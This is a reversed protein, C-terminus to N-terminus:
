KVKIHPAVPRETSCSSVVVPDVEGARIAAELKKNDIVQVTIGRWQDDTLHKRLEVPDVDVKTPTVLVATIPDGDVVYDLEREGEALMYEVVEAQATKIYDQAKTIQKRLSAIKKIRTKVQAQTLM